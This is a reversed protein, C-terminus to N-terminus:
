CSHSFYGTLNLRYVGDTDQRFGLRAANKRCFDSQKELDPYEASKAGHLDFYNLMAKGLLFLDTEDEYGDILSLKCVIGKEGCLAVYALGVFRDPYRACIVTKGEEPVIGFPATYEEREYSTYVPRMELMTNGRKLKLPEELLKDRQFEYIEM